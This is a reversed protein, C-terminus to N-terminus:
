VPEDDFTVGWTAISKPEYPRRHELRTPRWLSESAGYRQTVRVGAQGYGDFVMEGSPSHKVIRQPM